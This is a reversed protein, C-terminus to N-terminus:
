LSLKKRTVKQLTHRTSIEILVEDDGIYLEPDLREGPNYRITLLNLDQNFRVKWHDSLSGMLASIHDQHLTQDILVSFSLASNVALNISIGNQAFVSYIRTLHDELIFGGDLSYLSLLMQNRKLIYFPITNQVSKKEVRTGPKKPDLFSKVFLPIENEWLPKITKPHIISAGYYSLEALEHFSLQPIFIAQPNMKPDSNMIGPVDKWLTLSDAGLAAAFLAASYDSGERGLTTTYNESTGGIFGPCVLIKKEALPKLQNQILSQSLPWNVGASRYQNDTQIFGRSDVWETDMEQSKLYASVMKSSLIEGISVIQDYIFNYGTHPGEEIVWEIELFGNDLESFISHPPPFLERALSYHSSKVTELFPNLDVKQYYFRHTLNELANTTKGLASIVVCLGQHNEKESKVIQALRKFGAADHISAGGFKFVKM